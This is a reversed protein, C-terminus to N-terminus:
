AVAVEVRTRGDAPATAQMVQGTSPHRFQFPQGPACEPPIQVTVTNAVPPPQMAPAGSGLMVPTGVVTTPQGSQAVTMGPQGYPRGYAFAGHPSAVYQVPVFYHRRQGVQMPNGIMDIMGETIQLSILSHPTEVLAVQVMKPLLRVNVEMLAARMILESQMSARRMYSILPITLVSTGIAAWLFYNQYWHDFWKAFHSWLLMVMLPVDLLLSCCFAASAATQAPSLEMSAIARNIDAVLISWDDQGISSGALEPPRATPFRGTELDLPVLVQVM